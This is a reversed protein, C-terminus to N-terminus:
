SPKNERTKNWENGRPREPQKKPSVTCSIFMRWAQLLEALAGGYKGTYVKGM